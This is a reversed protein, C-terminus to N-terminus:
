KKINVCIVLVFVFYVYKVYGNCSTLHSGPCSKFIENDKPKCAHHCNTITKSIKRKSVRRKALKEANPALTEKALKEANTEKALTLKKEHVNDIVDLTEKALKDANSAFTEKALTEKALKEALIKEHVKDIVDLLFCKGIHKKDCHKCAEKKNSSSYM